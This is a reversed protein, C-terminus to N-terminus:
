GPSPAQAPGDTRRAPQGCVREVFALVDAYVEERNTENLVEHRAGPYIKYALDRVGAERLWGEVQRTGEGYGSVPDEEGAIILMPLDKPMRAAWKPGTVEKLMLFLEKYGNLTFRFTCKPDAVFADVVAEDRSLWDYVTKPHGIRKLYAGFALHDVFNSRAHAGNKKVASLTTTLGIGVDVLPNKGGTGSIILGDISEPWKIPYERAFFSGMSHGLLVVPLGPFHSHALANMTKMDELLFNRGGEGFYGLNAEAKATEGHGLHDNGCVAVGRAAFYAATEEYRSMMECMGHSIQLVCFPRVAADTYLFAAASTRGDASDFRIGKKVLQPM